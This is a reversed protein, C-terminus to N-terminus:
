PNLVQQMESRMKKLCRKIRQGVDNVSCGIILAIEKFKKEEIFRLSLLNRCKPTIREFLRDIMQSANEAAFREGIDYTENVYDWFDTSKHGEPPSLQNLMRDFQEDDDGPIPAKNRAKLLDLTKNRFIYMFYTFLKASQGAKDQPPRQILALIAEQFIDELDEEAIKYRSRIIGFAPQRFRDYIARSVAERDSHQLRDVLVEKALYTYGAPIKLDEAKTQKGDIRQCYLLLMELLSGSPARQHVNSRLDDLVEAFARIAIQKIRETPYGQSRYYTFVPVRYARYVAQWTDESRDLRLLERLAEDDHWRHGTKRKM